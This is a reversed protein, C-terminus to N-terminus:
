LAGTTATPKVDVEPAPSDQQEVRTWGEQIFIDVSGTWRDIRVLVFQAQMYRSGRASHKQANGTPKPETRPMRHPSIISASGLM